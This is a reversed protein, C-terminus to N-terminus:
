EARFATIKEASVFNPYEEAMMEIGQWVTEFINRIRETQPYFTVKDGMRAMMGRGQEGERTLMELLTCWLTSVGACVIDKGKEDAGAHGSIEMTLKGYDYRAQIM